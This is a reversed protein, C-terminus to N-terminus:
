SGLRGTLDNEAGSLIAAMADMTTNIPGGTAALSLRARCGHSRASPGLRSGPQFTASGATSARSTASQATCFILCHSAPRMAAHPPRLRRSLRAPWFLTPAPARAPFCLQPPCPSPLAGFPALSPHVLGEAQLPARPHVVGLFCTINLARTSSPVRLEDPASRRLRGSYPSLSVTCADSRTPHRASRAM